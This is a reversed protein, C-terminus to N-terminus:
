LRKKVLNLRVRARYLGRCMGAPPCGASSRRVGDSSGLTNCRPQAEAGYLSHCRNTSQRPRVPDVSARPHFLRVKCLAGWRIESVGLVAVTAAALATPGLIFRRAPRLLGAALVPRYESPGCSAALAQGGLVGRRAEANRMGREQAGRHLALVRLSSVQKQKSYNM